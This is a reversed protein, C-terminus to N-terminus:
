LPLNKHGFEECGTGFMTIPTKLEKRLQAVYVHVEEKAWPQPEGFKTFLWMCWGELGTIWHQFNVTGVEKLQKEKPWPGIPWKYTKEHVNIYGAKRISNSITDVTDCPRGAHTGCWIINPGIHSLVNDPPLSGDDTQVIFSMEVQEIWGGIRLNDYCHKYVLEWELPSFSGTMHRMHILDFKESWTWKQLVNDVELVCNPPVWTVPPPFLDVGRIIACPFIDAVDIAWTGNGTGIDLIHQPRKNLPVATPSYGIPSLFLPNMEDPHTALAVLHGAQYSEFQQDDSPIFYEEPRLTQYRRGNEVLGRNISSGISTTQSEWDEPAYASNARYLDHDQSRCTLLDIIPVRLAPPQNRRVIAITQNAM